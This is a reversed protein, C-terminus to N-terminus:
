AAPLNLCSALSDKSLATGPLTRLAKCLDGLYDEAPKGCCQHCRRKCAHRYDVRRHFLLELIKSASVSRHKARECLVIGQCCRQAFRLIDSVRKGNRATRMCVSTCFGSCAGNDRLGHGGWRADLVVTEHVDRVGTDEFEPLPHTPPHRGRVLTHGVLVTGGLDTAHVLRVSQPHVWTFRARKRGDVIVPSWGLDSAQQPLLLVYTGLPLEEVHTMSQATWGEFCLRCDSAKRCVRALGM